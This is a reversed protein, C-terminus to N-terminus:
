DTKTMETRITTRAALVAQQNAKGEESGLANDPRTALLRKRVAADLEAFTTPMAPLELTLLAEKIQAPADFDEAAVLLASSSAASATSVSSTASGQSGGGEDLEATFTIPKKFLSLIETRSTIELDPLYVLRDMARTRAIYALCLEEFREWDM